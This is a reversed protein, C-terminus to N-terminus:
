EHLGWSDRDHWDFGGGDDDYDYYDDYDSRDSEDYLDGKVREQLRRERALRLSFPLSLSM